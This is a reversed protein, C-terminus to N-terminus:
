GWTSTVGDLPLSVSTEDWAGGVTPDKSHGYIGISTIAMGPWSSSIDPVVQVSGSPLFGNPQAFVQDPKLELRRRAFAITLKACERAPTVQRTM